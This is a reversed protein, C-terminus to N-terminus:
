RLCNFFNVTLLYTLRLSMIGADPPMICISRIIAHIGKPETKRVGLRDFPSVDLYHLINGTRGACRSRVM